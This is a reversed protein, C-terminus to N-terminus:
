RYKITGGINNTIPVINTRNGGVTQLNVSLIQDPFRCFYNILIEKQENEDETEMPFNQILRIFNGEVYDKALLLDVYYNNDRSLSNV